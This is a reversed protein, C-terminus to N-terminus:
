GTCSSDQLVPSGVQSIGFPGGISTHLILSEPVDSQRTVSPVLIDKAVFANVMKVTASVAVVAYIAELIQEPATSSSVPRDLHGRRVRAYVMRRTVLLSRPIVATKLAIRLLAPSVQGVLLL